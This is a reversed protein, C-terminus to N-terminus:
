FQKGEFRQGFTWNAPIVNDSQVEKKYDSSSVKFSLSYGVLRLNTRWIGGWVRDMQWFREDAGNVKVWVLGVDGSGGVNYVLVQIFDPDGMMEFMIGGKKVCPVKRFQVPIISARYDNVLKFFMPQPLDFHKRPPNCRSASENSSAPHPWCFNTASITISGPACWRSDNYCRIEYCAGCTSGDNFLAKSVAATELGYGQKFLNGYGCAGGLSDRGTADGYYAATATDWESVQAMAGSAMLWATAAVCVIAISIKAM